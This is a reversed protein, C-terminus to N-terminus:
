GIGINKLQYLRDINFKKLSIKLFCFLVKVKTYDYQSHGINLFFHRLHNVQLFANNNRNSYAVAYVIWLFCVYSLIERISSWMQIEKRRRRRAEEVEYKTLRKARIHHSEEEGDILDPQNTDEIEEDDNFKRIFVAFL